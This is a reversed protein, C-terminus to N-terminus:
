SGGTTAFDDERYDADNQWIGRYHISAERQELKEIRAELKQLYVDGAAALSAPLHNKMLAFTSERDAKMLALLSERDGKILALLKYMLDVLQGKTAPSAAQKASLEVAMM